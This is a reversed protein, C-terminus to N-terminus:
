AVQLIHVDTEPDHANGAFGGPKAAALNTWTNPTGATAVPFTRAATDFYAPTATPMKWDGSTGTITIRGATVYMLKAGTNLKIGYGGNNNGYVGETVVFWGGTTGVVMTGGAQVTVADGACHFAGFAGALLTAGTGISLSGTFYCDQDIGIVNGSRQIMFSAALYGGFFFITAARRGWENATCYCNYFNVIGAVDIRMDVRCGDFTVPMHSGDEGAISLTDASGAPVIWLDRFFLGTTFSAVRGKSKVVMEAVVVQALTEVKYTDAVAPSATTMTSAPVTSSFITVEAVGGTLDRVVWGRKGANAGTLLTLRAGVEWTVVGADTIKVMTGGATTGSTRDLVTVASITGNRVVTPTPGAIVINLDPAMTVGSLDVRDSAASIVPEGSMYNFTLTNSATAIYGGAVRRSWEGMSLLPTLATAGDNADSANGKANLRDIFWTDQSLAPNADIAINPITGCITALMLSSADAENMGQGARRQTILTAAAAIRADGAPWLAAGASLMQSVNDRADDVLKGVPLVTSGIRVSNVLYYRM